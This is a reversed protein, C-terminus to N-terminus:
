YDQSFDLLLDVLIYIFLDKELLLIDKKLEIILKMKNNNEEKEM